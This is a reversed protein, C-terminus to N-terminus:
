VCNYTLFVTIEVVALQKDFLDAALELPEISYININGSWGTIEDHTNGAFGFDFITVTIEAFQIIQSNM